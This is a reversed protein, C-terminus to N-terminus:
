EMEMKVLPEPIALELHKAVKELLIYCSIIGKSLENQAERIEKLNQEMAQVNTDM